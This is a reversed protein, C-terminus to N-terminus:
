FRDIHCIYPIINVAHCLMGESASLLEVLKVEGGNPVRLNMVADV